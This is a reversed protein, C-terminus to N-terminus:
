IGRWFHTRFNHGLWPSLYPGWDKGKLSPVFRESGIKGRQNYRQVGHRHRGLYYKFPM